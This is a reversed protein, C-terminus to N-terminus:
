GRIYGSDAVGRGSPLVCPSGIGECDDTAIQEGPSIWAAFASLESVCCDM